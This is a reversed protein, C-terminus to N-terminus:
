INVSKNFYIQVYGSSFSLYILHLTKKKRTPLNEMNKLNKIIFM